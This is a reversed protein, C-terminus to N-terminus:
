SASSVETEPAIIHVDRLWRHLNDTSCPPPMTSRPRPHTAVTILQTVKFRGDRSEGGM